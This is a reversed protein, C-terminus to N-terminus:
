EMVESSPFGTVTVSGDAGIHIECATKGPMSALSYRETLFHVTQNSSGRWVLNLSRDARRFRGAVLIDCLALLEKRAPSDLENLEFGTFAMVSLGAARVRSALIALQAAQEFPEGGTLTIGEIGETALITEALDHVPVETRPRHSWTDPNWCGPCHLSCGQVWVVFREGPGNVASRPITRAINLM